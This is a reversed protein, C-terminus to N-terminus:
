PLDYQDNVSVTSSSYTTDAIHLTIANTTENCYLLISVTGETSFDGEVLNPLLSIEYLQPLVTRPLRLEQARGCPILGACSFLMLSLLLLVRRREMKISNSPM